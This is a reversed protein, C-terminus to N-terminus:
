REEPCVARSPSAGRARAPAIPFTLGTVTGRAVSVILVPRKADSGDGEPGEVLALVGPEVWRGRPHTRRASRVPMGPRIGEATRWGARVAGRGGVWACVIRAHGSCPDEGGSAAFGITLGLDPWSRTCRRGRRDATSQGGFAAVADSAIATHPNIPGL